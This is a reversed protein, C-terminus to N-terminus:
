ARASLPTVTVSIRTGGAPTSRAAPEGAREGQHLGHALGVERDRQPTHGLAPHGGIGGVLRGVRCLGRHPPQAPHDCQFVRVAPAPQDVQRRDEVVANGAPKAVRQGPSLVVQRDAGGAQVAAPQDPWGDGARVVRRLPARVARHQEGTAGGRDTGLHGAPQGLVAGFVQHQGGGLVLGRVAGQDLREGRRAALDGDGGTVTRVPVGHGGQQGCQRGVSRQGRDHVGGGREVAAHGVAAHQVGEGRLPEFRHEPGVCQGGCVQGLQGPFQVQGREHHERRNGPHDTAAALGTERGTAREEVGKGLLPRGLSQRGRGHGPARPRAGAGVRIQPASQSPQSQPFQCRFQGGVGKGADDGM